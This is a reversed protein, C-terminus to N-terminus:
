QSLSNQAQTGIAWMFIDIEESDSKVGVQIHTGTNKYSVNALVINGTLWRLWSKALFDLSTGTLFRIVGVIEHYEHVLLAGIM